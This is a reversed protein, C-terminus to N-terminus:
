QAGSRWARYGRPTVDMIGADDAVQHLVAGFKQGLKLRNGLHVSDHGSLRFLRRPLYSPSEGWFSRANEHVWRRTDALGAPGKAVLDRVAGDKQVHDRFFERDRPRLTLRFHDARGTITSGRQWIFRNLEDRIEASRAMDRLVALLITLTTLRQQGDVVDAEPRDADKILM